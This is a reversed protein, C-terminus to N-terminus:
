NLTPYISQHKNLVAEREKVNLQLRLNKISVFQKIADIGVANTLLEMMSKPKYGPHESFYKLVQPSNIIKDTMEKDDQKVAEHIDSFHKNTCKIIYIAHELNDGAKEKICSDDMLGATMSINSADYTFVSFIDSDVRTNFSDFGARLVYTTDRFYLNLIYLAGLTSLLNEITAYKRLSNYRDHKLAQYAQKWKSGGTGRKHAKHLPKIIRDEEEFYFTSASIIIEKKSIFYKSELLALCDTDFYLDRVKEETDTPNMNGGLSEYLKKSIAEIEVACRVIIDAMGISYVKKQDSSFHIYKSFNIVEQELNKYVSWFLDSEKM